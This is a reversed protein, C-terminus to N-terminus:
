RFVVMYMKEALRLIPYPLAMLLLDSRRKKVVRCRLSKVDVGNLWEIFVKAEQHRIEKVNRAHKQLDTWMYVEDDGFQWVRGELNRKIRPFTQEDISFGHENPDLGALELGLITRSCKECHNCNKGVGPSFLKRSLIDTCSSFQLNLKKRRIYDSFLFMKNQRSLEYGDHQVKTGTWEINNDIDPHSGWPIKADATYSSAIYLKDVKEIYTLPACLGIFALGHMVRTYWDGSLEEAFIGLMFLDPVFMWNSRIVRKESKLSNFMKELTAFSINMWESERKSWNRSTFNVDQISVLIPNEDEHRIFTTLSDLGGSFLAMRRTRTKVHPSEIRKAQIKGSFKIKPYFKQLTEKVSDLSSLFTADVSEVFVDAQNAWAIPAITSLFPIILVAEPVGEISADYEAIFKTINFFKKIKGKCEFDVILRNGSVQVRSATIKNM